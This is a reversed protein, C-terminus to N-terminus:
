HQNEVLWNQFFSFHKCFIV